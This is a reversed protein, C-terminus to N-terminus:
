IRSRLLCSEQEISCRVFEITVPSKPDDPSRLPGYRELLPLIKTCAEGSFSLPTAKGRPGESQAECTFGTGDPKQILRLNLVEVSRHHEPNPLAAILTRAEDRFIKNEVPAPEKLTPDPKRIFADQSLLHVAPPKKSETMVFLASNKKFHAEGTLFDDIFKGTRCDAVLWITQFLLEVRLMLYHGAFNPASLSAGSHLIESKAQQARFYSGFQLPACKEGTEAPSFAKLYSEYPALVGVEGSEKAPASSAAPAAGLAPGKPSEHGEETKVFESGTFRYWGTETKNKFLILSSDM